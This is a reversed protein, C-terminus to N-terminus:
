AAVWHGGYRVVPGATCCPLYVVAVILWAPGETWMLARLSSIMKRDASPLSLPNPSPASNDQACLLDAAQLHGSHSELKRDKSWSDTTCFSSSLNNSTSLALSLSLYLCNSISRTICCSFSLKNKFLFFFSLKASNCFTLSASSSFSFSLSSFSFSVQGLFNVNSIFWTWFNTWLKKLSIYRGVCLYIYLLRNPSPLLCPLDAAQRQEANMLYVRYVRM